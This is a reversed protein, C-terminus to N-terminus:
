GSGFLWGQQNPRRFPSPEIPRPPPTLGLRRALEARSMPGGRFLAELARTENIHRVAQPMSM